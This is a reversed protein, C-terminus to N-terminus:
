QEASAVPESKNWEVFSGDYLTPRFGLYRLVFYNMSAEVGTRCYVVIREDRSTINLSAYIQELQEPTKFARAKGPKTLNSTAPLCTAGAIHGGHDVEAGKKHGLFHQPDRADLLVVPEGSALLEKLQDRSIVTSRNVIASFEGPKVAKIATRLPRKEITWQANGGDLVAAHDGWGLYDLTFYARTALLPDNSTLIIRDGPKVGADRFLEELKAVSPLEDPIEGRRAMLGNVNLFLAGDIHGKTYEALTTVDLVRVNPNDINAALWDTSVIMQPQVNAALAFALVLSLM